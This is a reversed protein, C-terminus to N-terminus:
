CDESEGVNEEVLDTKQISVFEDDGEEIYHKDFGVEGNRVLWQAEGESRAIVECYFTRVIFKELAEVEYSNWPTDDSFTPRPDAEPQKMAFCNSDVDFQKMQGNDFVHVVYLRSKVHNQQTMLCKIHDDAEKNDPPFPFECDGGAGWKTIEQNQDIALVWTGVHKPKKGAM